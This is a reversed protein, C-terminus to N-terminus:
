MFTNIAQVILLFCAFCVAVRAAWLTLFSLISVSFIIVYRSRSRILCHRWYGQIYFLLFAALLMAYAYCKIRNLDTFFEVLNEM